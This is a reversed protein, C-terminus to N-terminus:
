RLPPLDPLGDELPVGPGRRGDLADHGAPFPFEVLQALASASEIFPSLLTPHHAICTLIPLPQRAAASSGDLPATPSPPPGCGDGGCRTEERCGGSQGKRTQGWLAM